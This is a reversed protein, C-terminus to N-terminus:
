RAGAKKDPQQANGPLAAGQSQSRSASTRYAGCGRLIEAAALARDGARVAVIVRGSTFERDYYEAEAEAVGMGLLAGILGGAAAGLTTAGLVATLIGMAVVPGIGPILGTVVAGTLAGLAGGTAAGAAAGEEVKTGLDSRAPHGEAVGEERVAVGIQEPKFGARQLEDIAKQAQDRSVFAGV